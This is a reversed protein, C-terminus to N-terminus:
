RESDRVDDEVLEDEVAQGPSEPDLGEGAGGGGCTAFGSTALNVLLVLGLWAAKSVKV